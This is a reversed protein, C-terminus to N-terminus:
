NVILTIKECLKHDYGNHRLCIERRKTINERVDIGRDLPRDIEGETVTAEIERMEMRRHDIERM